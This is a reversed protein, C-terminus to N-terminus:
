IISFNLRTLKRIYIASGNDEIIESIEPEDIIYATKDAITMTLDGYLRSLIEDVITKVFAYDDGKHSVEVLVSCRVGKSLKDSEPTQNFQSVSIYTDYENVGGVISIVPITVGNVVINSFLEYLKQYLEVSIDAVSQM